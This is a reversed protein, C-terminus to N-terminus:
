IKLHKVVLIVLYGKMQETENIKLIVEKNEGVNVAKEYFHQYAGITNILVLLFIKQLM